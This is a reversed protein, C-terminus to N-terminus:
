RENTPIGSVSTEDIPIQYQIRPDDYRIVESVTRSPFRRDIDKKNRVLDLVRFGEYYLEMRREDLVADLIDAYGRKSLNASTMQANGTLGARTRVVNIDALAQADKGLHAYAEARNLVVEGYRLMIMSSSIPFTLDTQHSFKECFWTPYGGERISCNTTTWIVSGTSTIVPTPMVQRVYCRTRSGDNLIYGPFEESIRTSTNDPIAKMAKGQYTFSYTGDGNDTISSTINGTAVDVNPLAIAQTLCNNVDDLVGWNVMLGPKSNHLRVLDKFRKDQPFRGMLDLLPDAVYLEGWGTGQTGDPSDYMSALNGKPPMNTIDSNTIDVCWLVEKSSPVKSYLDTVEAELHSGPDSGLIEDCVQICKEWEGKYLYLRGLLAQAAEKGAYGNDGRKTEPSMLRIAELLDKEIAEYCEGVTARKTETFDNGIRLIVGPNDAGFSYPKAFMNCLTFHFFARLFYNEGLLQKKLDSEEDLGGINANAAYILKYCIVWMYASNASDAGDMYTAALWFPDTSTNSFCINDGKLENLLFYQRIFTNNQSIGGRFEAMDKMMAYIGDTTYVAAGPNTALASSTLSDSEVFDLNVCGALLLPLFIMSLIKKM